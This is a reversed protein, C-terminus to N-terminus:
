KEGLLSACNGIINSAERIPSDPNQFENINHIYLHTFADMLIQVPNDAKPHCWKSRMERDDIDAQYKALEKAKEEQEARYEDCNHYATKVAWLGEPAQSEGQWFPRTTTTKVLGWKGSKYQVWALNECGCRNCVRLDHKSIPKILNNIPNRSM